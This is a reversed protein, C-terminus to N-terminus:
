RADCSPLVAMSVSIEDIPSRRRPSGAGRRAHAAVPPASAAAFDVHTSGNAGRPFVFYRQRKVSLALRGNAREVARSTDGYRARRHSATIRQPASVDLSLPPGKNDRAPGVVIPRGANARHRRSAPYSPWAATVRTATRAIAHWLGRGPSPCAQVPLDCATACRAPVAFRRGHSPRAGVGVGGGAQPGGCSIACALVGAWNSSPRMM